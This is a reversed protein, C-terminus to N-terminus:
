LSDYTLYEERLRYFKSISDPLNPFIGIRRRYSNCWDRFNRKAKPSSCPYKHIAEKLYSECLESNNFGEKNNSTSSCTLFSIILLGIIILIINEQLM